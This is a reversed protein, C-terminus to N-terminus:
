ADVEMASTRLTLLDRLQGTSLETLWSEGSGIINKALETKQEIMQDIREELTGVCVFKHVHVTRTQGIRFARDTAQNEVAPNWWRDFHFVHSAATLNLGVGGAKLSLIFVPTGGHPNQFRDILAQRKSAPTGGHLFLPEIDLERQLMSALLHGMQRFQTFILSKEGTALVEELMDILRQSKGSRQALHNDGALAPAIALDTGADMEEAEDREQDVTSEGKRGNRAQLYQLPHNCIQKLKVLTALVLGRRQIGAARDVEGLMSNVVQQYLAAQEPTLTAFEKTELCDPLDDIVNPDTKVRRLIFPRVMHRLREAQRQNRHREIPIAFRRRFEGGPGLYGPNLFEMISWLESLRNEVPTGTLALRRAANLSRIAATQKTPPNKIYQAEDLTVRHWQVRRLTEHDRAVLPYTTIVLDHQQALEVFRDGMIRDPGHHIYPKLSPGFRELERKWNAVVSTPVILLTPGIRHENAVPETAPDVRDAVEMAGGNGVSPIAPFGREHLLLAIFQITKGLGMDDALCAGLGYHDLFALWSLGSKQYVRLDGKFNGPQEISPMVRDDSSANLVDAVWGTADMGFVPLEAGFAASAGHATQIAQLLTMEGTPSKLIFERAEALQKPNIEIWKGRVRVLPAAQKALAEFEAMDLPQDGIAIQWRYHVLSNLGLLSSAPSTGGPSLVAEAPPTEIQLRAGLRGVPQNWWAPVIVHVGSDELLPRIDRLFDYAQVTTLDIHAPARESLAEEIPPWIGSVRGLEALLLEEPQESAASQRGSAAGSWISTADIVINPDDASQLHLTLLWRMNDATAASAGKAKKGGAAAPAPVSALADIAIMPEHLKMLLHMARGQGTDALRGVWAGADRLLDTAMSSPASIQSQDGLLGSLWAVHSDSTADRGDLADAFSERTLTQRVFADTMASLASDVIAWPQGHRDDVVARVVPPMSGLMGALLARNEDDSTWPHWAATLGDGRLQLVTPIFRETALLDIALRAVRIFFKVSPSLNITDHEVGELTLLADLAAAAEFELTAVEFVELRPLTLPEAAGTLLRLHDSLWPGADDAPLRLRISSAQIRRPASSSEAEAGGVNVGIVRLRELLVDPLAIHPHTGTRAGIPAHTSVGATAPSEAWFHLSKRTWNAHLVLIM